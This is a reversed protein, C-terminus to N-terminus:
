PAVAGEALEREVRDAEDAATAAEEFRGLELFARSRVRHIDPLLERQVDGDLLQQALPEVDLFLGQNYADGLRRYLDEMRSSMAVRADQVSRAADAAAQATAAADVDGLGASVQGISTLLLLDDPRYGKAQELIRLARTSQGAEHYAMARMVMVDVNRAAIIDEWLPDVYRAAEGARHQYFLAATLLSVYDVDRPNAEVLPKILAEGEAFRQLYIIDLRALDVTEDLTRQDAPKAGILDALPEWRQCAELVERLAAYPELEQPYAQQVSQLEAIPGPECRTQADLALVAQVRARSAADQQYTPQVGPADPSDAPRGCAAGAIPLLLAIGLSISRTRRM